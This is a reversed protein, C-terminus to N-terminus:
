CLQSGLPGGANSGKYKLPERQVRYPLPVDINKDAWEAPSLYTSRTVLAKMPFPYLVLRSFRPTSHRM